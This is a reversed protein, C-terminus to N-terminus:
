EKAGASKYYDVELVRYPKEIKQRGTCIREMNALDGNSNWEFLATNRRQYGALYNVLMVSFHTTGVSKGIGGIGIIEPKDTSFFRKKKGM